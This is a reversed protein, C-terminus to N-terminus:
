STAEGHSPTPTVTVYRKSLDVPAVIVEGELHVISVDTPFHIPAHFRVGVRRVDPSGRWASVARAATWMGHILPRPHGFPRATLTHLHIPDINKSIAGYQLGKEPGIHVHERDRLSVKEALREDERHRRSSTTKKCATTSSSWAREGDIFLDTEITFDVGAAHRAFRGLTSRFTWLGAKLVRHVAIAEAKHLLGLPFMPFARQSVLAFHVPTLLAYPYLPHVSEHPWAVCDAYRRAHPADFPLTAESVISQDPLSRWSRLKGLHIPLTAFGRIMTLWSAM